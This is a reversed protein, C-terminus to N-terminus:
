KVLKTCRPLEDIKIHSIHTRTNVYMYLRVIYHITHIRVIMDSWIDFADGFVTM